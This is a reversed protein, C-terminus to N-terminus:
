RGARLKYRTNNQFSFHNWALREPYGFYTFRRICINLFHYYSLKFCNLVFLILFISFSYKDRLAILNYKRLPFDCLCLSYKFWVSPTLLTQDYFKFCLIFLMGPMLYFKYKYFKYLDKPYKVNFIYSEMIHSVIRM